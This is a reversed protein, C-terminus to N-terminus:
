ALRREMLIAKDHKRISAFVRKTEYRFDQYSVSCRDVFRNKRFIHQSVRGTAETVAMRYGKRLGNETCAQVLGQGIGQGAFQGDVALMFLHLCEGHAITRGDRFQEDLVELMALIPLLKPSVQGPELVPPTAFDDALFAGAPKGTDRCRSVVTLGHQIIGPVVLQLFQKMDGFSLGMAVAPPESESFVKALLWIVDDSDSQRAVTYDVPKTEDSIM